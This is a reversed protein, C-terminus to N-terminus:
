FLLGPDCYHIHSELDGEKKDSILSSNVNMMDSGHYAFLVSIVRDIVM